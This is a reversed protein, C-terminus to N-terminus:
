NVDCISAFGFGSLFFYLGVARDHLAPREKNKLLTNAFRQRAPGM